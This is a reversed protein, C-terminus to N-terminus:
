SSPSPTGSRPWGSRTSGSTRTWTVTTTDEGEDETHEHGEAAPELGVIEGAELTDGEYTQEIAEDVAPQFDALYVVLAAEAIEATERVGLELDHPEGGPRTLTSVAVREGGVREVVYALPYFGAAVRIHDADPEALASCGSLLLAATALGVLAKM